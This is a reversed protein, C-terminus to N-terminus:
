EWVGKENCTVIKGKLVFGKGQTYAKGENICLVMTTRANGSPDRLMLETKRVDNQGGKRCVQQSGGVLVTVNEGVPIGAFSCQAAAAGTAFLFGIITLTLKM